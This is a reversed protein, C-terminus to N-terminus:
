RWGRERVDPLDPQSVTGLGRIEHSTQHGSGMEVGLMFEPIIWPARSCLCEEEQPFAMCKSDGRQFGSVFALIKIVITEGYGITESGM